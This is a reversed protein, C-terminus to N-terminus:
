VYGILDLATTNTANVRSVRFAGIYSGPSVNKHVVTVGQTDTVSVNGGTGVFIQRVVHTLENVDHPTIAILRLAPVDALSTQGDFPNLAPM